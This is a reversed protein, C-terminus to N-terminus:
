LQNRWDPRTRPRNAEAMEADSAAGNGSRSRGALNGFRRLAEEDADAGGAASGNGNGNPGRSTKLAQLEDRWNVPRRSSDSRDAGGNNSSSPRPSSSSPRPPAAAAAPPPPPAAAGSSMSDAMKTLKSAADAASKAAAAAGGTLGSLSAGFNPMTFGSGAAPAAPAAPRAPPPPARSAAGNLSATVPPPMGTGASARPFSPSLSRTPSPSRAPPPPLVPAGPAVAGVGARVNNFLSGLTKTVDPQPSTSRAAAAAATAAAAAAPAAPAAAPAPPPPPPAKIRGARVDEVYKMVAPDEKILSNIDTQARGCIADLPLIGFPEEISIGIEDIGLLLFGILAIVPLMSWHYREWLGLPLIALWLTLFRATHRTYSVPIPTRLLRECGGLADYFFTCNEQMQLAQFQTISLQRTLESLVSIAKIPRHQANVLMDIEEKSWRPVAKELEKRLDIDEQLHAQLARTFGVTWKGIAERGAQDEVPIFTVAQNAINRARNLIGGWIKRAEDFRGYSSNTRFVLLLSLAFSTLGQPEASMLTLKPLYSPLVGAEICTEYFGFLISWALVVGMPQSLQRIIRSGPITRLNYIYRNVDRHKAWLAFDYVVRRYQRTTMDQPLKKEEVPAATALIGSNLGRRVGHQVAPRLASRAPLWSPRQSQLRTGSKLQCQM